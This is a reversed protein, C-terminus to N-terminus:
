ARPLTQWDVDYVYEGRAAMDRVAELVDRARLLTIDARGIRGDICRGARKLHPMIRQPQIHSMMDRRFLRTHCEAIRGDDLRTLAIYRETTLPSVPFQPELLADVSHMFTNRVVDVGLFVLKADLDALRAWPSGPGCPSDVLHHGAIVAEARGGWAVVSHTPHLSRVAGPSRRFVETLLGMASPTRRRDFVKGLAVHEIASGSFPLSPMLLLGDPGVAEKLTAVADASTGTFGRLQDSSSHVMIVDGEAIGAARLAALFDGPTFRYYRTIWADRARHYTNRLPWLVGAPFLRRALEHPSV